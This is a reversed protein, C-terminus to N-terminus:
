KRNDILNGSLYEMGSAVQLAIHLFEPQELPGAIPQQVSTLPSRLDVRPSRAMLFEHLDGHTMYEFLMCLPEEHAVVGLLCVINAHRLESM